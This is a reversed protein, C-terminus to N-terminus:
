TGKDARMLARGILGQALRRRRGEFAEGLIRAKDAGVERTAGTDQVGPASLELRVGVDVGDDRGAAERLVAGVPSRGSVVEKDGNFRKRRDVSGDAFVVHCVGPEKVPDIWLDPCGGPVHVAQGIGMSMGGECVECGIDKLAGDGMAADDGEIVAGHGERITVGAPHALTGGLEVGDLKDMPKKLVDQRLTELRDTVAAKEVWATGDWSIGQPEHDELLAGASEARRVALGRL